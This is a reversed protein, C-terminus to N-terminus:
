GGQVVTNRLIGVGEVEVEVVDGPSLARTAGPTGTFILDGPQLTVYRSVYSVITAVDFILESTRAHQRVEGNVRTEVQVDDPDLGTTIAPGVPGFTDSAKARFWQLDSAQWDRESVDDGATIGLVCDMARDRAVEHCTRGIVLVMEGEYHLNKADPPRVIDAGSGVLSTPLKLFLGPYSASERQGLHSQYNLGVAIVKRAPTVPLLTVDALAVRRDTEEHKGFLDGDIERISDDRVIGYSTRGAHEYRVYRVVNEQVTGGTRATDQAGLGSPSATAVLTCAILALTRM